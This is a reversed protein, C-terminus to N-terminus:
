WATRVFLTLCVLSIAQYEDAWGEAALDDLLEAFVSGVMLGFHNYKGQSLM